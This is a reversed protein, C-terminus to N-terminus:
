KVVRKNGKRNLVNLQAEAEPSHKRERLKPSDRDCFDKWKPCEEIRLSNALRKFM